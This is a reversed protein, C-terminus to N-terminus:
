GAGWLKLYWDIIKACNPSSDYALELPKYLIRIQPKWIGKNHLRVAPGLSLPYIVFVIFCAWFLWWTWSHAYRTDSKPEEPM